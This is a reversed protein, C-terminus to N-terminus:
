EHRYSIVFTGGSLPGTHDQYGNDGSADLATPQFSSLEKGNAAAGTSVFNGFDPFAGTPSELIVEASANDGNSTKKVAKMWHRTNNTITLTYRTGIRTVKASVSDGQRIVNEYYIPPAPFMEFWVRYRPRGSLCSIEMGTQEVSNGSIGGLGVWPGVVDIASNCKVVPIVWSASVSSFGSGLAAYGSWNGGDVTSRYVSQVDVDTQINLAALVVPSRTTGPNGSSEVTGILLAAVAILAVVLGGTRDARSMTRHVKMM